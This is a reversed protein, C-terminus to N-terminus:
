TQDRLACPTRSCRRLIAHLQAFCIAPGPATPRPRSAGEEAGLLPQNFKIILGAVIGLILAAGAEPLCEVHHEELFFGIILASCLLLIM